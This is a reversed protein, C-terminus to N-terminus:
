QQPDGGGFGRTPSEAHAAEVLSDRDIVKSLEIELSTPKNKISIDGPDGFTM